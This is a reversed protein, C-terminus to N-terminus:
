KVEEVLLERGNLILKDGVKKGNLLGGLPSGLSIVMVTEEKVKVPGVGTLLWYWQGNCKVLNGRSIPEPKHETSTQNLEHILRQALDLQQAARDREIQMMARTTEYKDGVTSKGEANAAQQANEMAQRSTAAKQQAIDLAAKKLRAKDM